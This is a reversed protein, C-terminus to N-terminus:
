TKMSLNMAELKDFDSCCTKYAKRSSIVKRRSCINLTGNFFLTLGEVFGVNGGTQCQNVRGATWTWLRFELNGM